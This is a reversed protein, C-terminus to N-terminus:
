LRRSVISLVLMAKKLLAIVQPLTAVNAAFYTDIQAQTLGQLTTLLADAKAAAVDASMKLEAASPLPAPDAAQVVNGLAIWRKCEEYDSNGDAVFFSWARGDDDIRAICNANMYKYNIM